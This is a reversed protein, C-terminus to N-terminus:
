FLRFSTFSAAVAASFMVLLVTPVKWWHTGFTRRVALRADLDLTVWLMWMMAIILAVAVIIRM